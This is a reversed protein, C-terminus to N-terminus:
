LSGDSYYDTWGCKPCITEAEFWHDVGDPTSTVGSNVIKFYKNESESLLVPDGETSACHYCAGGSIAYGATAAGVSHVLRAILPYSSRYGKSWDCFPRWAEWDLWKCFRFVTKYLLWWHLNPFIWTGDWDRKPLLRLNAAWVMRWFLWRIPRIFIYGRLIFLWKM